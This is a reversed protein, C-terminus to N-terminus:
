DVIIGMRQLAEESHAQQVCPGWLAPDSVHTSAFEHACRAAAACRPTGCHRLELGCTSRRLTKLRRSKPLVVIRASGRLSLCDPYFAQWIYAVLLVLFRFVMSRLCEARGM